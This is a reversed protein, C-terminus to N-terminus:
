NIDEPEDIQKTGNKISNIIKDEIGKLFESNEILSTKFDDESYKVDEYTVVGARLKWIGFTKGYTLITKLNDFGVGFITEVDTEKYPTYTKNKTTKVTTETGTTNDGEKRLRRTMDIIVDAIYEIAFGGPIVRNDGFMKGPDVRYQCIIVVCTNTKEAWMKIKPYNESNMKAKKGITQTGAEADMMSKPILMSDSDIIILGVEGTQMLQIAVELGEEGFKPQNLFFNNHVDVNLNRFYKLDVAHESDIYVVKDGKKQANASLHGCLTSKNSGSWGKVMYVKSKAVGGIGLVDYDIGINGTPIIDYDEVIKDKFDVVTNKGFSKNLSALTEEFSLKKEEKKAM